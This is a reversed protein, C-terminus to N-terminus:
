MLRKISDHGWSVLENAENPIKNNEINTVENVSVKAKEPLCSINPDNHQVLRSPGDSPNYKSPKLTVTFKYNHLTEFWRWLRKNDKNDSNKFSDLHLLAANDVIVDFDQNILYTKFEECFYELSFLEKQVISWKQEADTLVKSAFSVPHLNGKDDKQCLISGIAYSSSDTMLTFKKDVDPHVLTPAVSLAHRLSEWAKQQEHGWEFAANKKLLRTLPAALKAYDKIFKRFFGSMGLFTKIGKVNRPPLMKEIADLKDNCVSVGAESLTVGLFNLQTKFLEVKKPSLLMKSSLIRDFILRLNALMGHFSSSGNLLDDLYAVVVSSKLGMMMKEVLSQFFGPSSSLGLTTKLYEFFAVGPLCTATYKVSEPSLNCLYFGKIFDMKSYLNCDKWCSSMMEVSPIAQYSRVVHKKLM